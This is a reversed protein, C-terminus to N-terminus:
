EKRRIGLKAMKYRLVRESIGLQEAARTQVWEADDLANLLMKREMAALREGLSGSQDTDIFRIDPPLDRAEIVSSRALTVTRQIIHELERVNGPFPYKVLVAMAEASFRVPTMGYREIFFDVLEPIEERRKRLPPIVLDLVKLRYYLDERFLGEEVRRKLEQNTAAVIRVSVAFEREGGVRSIRKEQMARLLKPQLTLPLEGIEDLFLTGGSAQEFRGRRTSSAGTFAGKEHGFLESEFLNEPIAGCNVVVFPGERVPSLEHILRAILEKGTGTEGRILVTWPTPAARRVVSLVEKMAPSGSVMRIPLDGDEMATEVDGAETEVALRQEIWRIKELLLRLDVPKELFDDAGLKMVNVATEISGYATIMIARVTPQLSKMETLVEDGNMDPMRHDLLVLQIPLRQFAELAERGNAATFVSFGQKELFGKLLNRQDTEDDAILIKM